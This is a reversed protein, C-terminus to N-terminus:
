DMESFKKIKSLNKYDLRGSCNSLLNKMEAQVETKKGASDAYFLMMEDISNVYNGFYKHTTEVGEDRAIYDIYYLFQEYGDLTTQLVEFPTLEISGAPENKYVDNLNENFHDRVADYQGTTFAEWLKEEGYVVALEAVVHTEFEYICTGKDHPFVKASFYNALGENLAVGFIVDSNGDNEIRELGLTKRNNNLDSIYHMVEHAFFSKGSEDFSEPILIAKLDADYRATAQISSSRNFFSDPMCIIKPMGKTVQYEEKIKNMVQNCISLQRDTPSISDKLFDTSEQETDSIATLQLDPNYYKPANTSDTKSSCSTFSPFLAICLAMATVSIGKKM